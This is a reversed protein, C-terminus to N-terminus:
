IKKLKEIAKVAWDPDNLLGRGVAVLDVRGEKVIKDAYEPETIGGVGIVPVNVVKKIEQAQPVFFGQTGELSAPAGGCIGGSVDIIDVGAEELKVAFRKSDEIQTGAPDLDVSGLRYLLLKEGVKEKVKEVVKLPFSIRKELSGGYKDGRRNTLPSYFQNLLFGHAGHVEVGDFGAKIAREAAQAYADVLMEIEEVKLERADGIASPAVPQTGIIEESATKGAHNIQAVIPTGAAHVSSSLKELGSILSDDYIGLQRRSLKGEPVVYSHEVILLGLAKARRVYHEILEETVAGRVTALGTQMPPMVIRNKLKLGKVELPDLLGVLM